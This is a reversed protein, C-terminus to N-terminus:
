ARVMEVTKECECAVRARLVESSWSVANRVFLRVRDCTSTIYKFRYLVAFNSGRQVPTKIIDPSLDNTSIGSYKQLRALEYDMHRMNQDITSNSWPFVTVITIEGGACKGKTILQDRHVPPLLASFLPLRSFISTFDDLSPINPFIKVSHCTSVPRFVTTLVVVVVLHNM